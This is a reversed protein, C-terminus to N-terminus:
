LTEKWQFIYVYGTREQSTLTLNTECCSGKQNQFTFKEWRHTSTTFLISSHHEVLFSLLLSQLLVLSLSSTSPPLIFLLFSPSFLPPGWLMGAPFHTTNMSSPQSAIWKFNGAQGSPRFGWYFDTMGLHKKITPNQPKILSPLRLAIHPSSFFVTRLILLTFLPVFGASFPVFHFDGLWTQSQLWMSQLWGPEETWPIKWALISSPTTMEKKLPDEWRLSQVRTGQMTPPNKIIQAVLSAWFLTCLVINFASTAM